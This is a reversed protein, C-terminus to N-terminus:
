HVTATASPALHKNQLYLLRVGFRSTCIKVPALTRVGARVIKEGKRSRLGAETVLLGPCWSTPAVVDHDEEM